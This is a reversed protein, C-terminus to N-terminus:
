RRAAISGVSPRDSSAVLHGGTGCTGPGSSHLRGNVLRIVVYRKGEEVEFDNGCHLRGILPRIVWTLAAAM